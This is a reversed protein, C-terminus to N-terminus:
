KSLLTINTNNGIPAHINQVTSAVDFRINITKGYPERVLYLSLIHVNNLNVFYFVCVSM